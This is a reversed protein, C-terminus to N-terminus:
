YLNKREALADTEEWFKIYATRDLHRKYKNIRLVTVNWGQVATPVTEDDFCLYYGNTLDFVDAPSSIEWNRFQFEEGQAFVAVVRSWDNRSLTKAKTSDICTYVLKRGNNLTRKFGTKNYARIGVTGPKNKREKMKEDSDHYTAKELFERCNFITLLSQNRPVIIIPEANRKESGKTKSSTRKQKRTESPNPTQSSHIISGGIDIGRLMESNADQDKWSKYRNYSETKKPPQNTDSLKKKKEVQLIEHTRKLLQSFDKNSSQLVSTQTRFPKERKLIYQTVKERKELYSQPIQDFLNDQVKISTSRRLKLSSKYKAIKDDTDLDSVDNVQDESTNNIEDLLRRMLERAEREDDDVTVIEANLIAMIDEDMDVDNGEDTEHFTKQRKVPLVDEVFPYADEEGRFWYGMKIKHPLIVNKFVSANCVKLYDSLPMDYNKFLFWIDGLSYEAPDENTRMMHYKLDTPMKVNDEFILFHNEEDHKVEKHHSIHEKLLHIAKQEM